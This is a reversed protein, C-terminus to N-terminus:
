RGLAIDLVREHLWAEITEITDVPLALFKDEYGDWIAGDEILCAFLDRDGVMPECCWFEPEDYAWRLWRVQGETCSYALGGDWYEYDTTTDVGFIAGDLEVEYEATSTTFRMSETM